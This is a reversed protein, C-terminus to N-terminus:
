SSAAGIPIAFAPAATASRIAAPKDPMGLYKAIVGCTTGADKGILCDQHGHGAIRWTLYSPGGLSLIAGSDVILEKIQAETQWVATPDKGDASANLYPVNSNQLLNRMLALTAVDVLGNDEGHISMMPFIMRKMIRDHMVYRNVGDRDSVVNFGAFHIVQSVTEVSLPGFFDDINDLVDDSLNNLSFTRAYLADMRHRTGVWPTAKGPPWFPNERKYEDIPVATAALARDLLQGAPSVEGRPSFTYDELPLFERVYRMVYARLVNAPSLIMAPGVQSFVVRGIKTHLTNPQQKLDTDALVAMAFMAGGMCQCVVDVKPTEAHELVHEIAAPIDARAMVEFPWDDTATPLGASSRMDLVWVDRHERCLMEVM